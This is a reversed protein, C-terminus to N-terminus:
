FQLLLFILIVITISLAMIPYGIIENLSQLFMVQKSKWKPVNSATTEWGTLGSRTITSKIGYFRYIEQHAKEHAYYIIYIFFVSLFISIITKILM